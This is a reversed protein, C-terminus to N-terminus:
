LKKCVLFRGSNVIQKEFIDAELSHADIFLEKYGFSHLRIVLVYGCINSLLYTIGNLINPSINICSRHKELIEVIQHPSLCLNHINNDISYFAKIVNLSKTPEFAAITFSETSIGTPCLLKLWRDERDYKFNYDKFTKSGDLKDLIPQVNLTIPKIDVLLSM